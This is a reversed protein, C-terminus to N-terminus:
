ECICLIPNVILKMRSSTYCLIGAFKFVKPCDHIMVPIIFNSPFCLLKFIFFVSLCNPLMMFVFTFVFKLFLGILKKPLSIYYLLVYRCCPRTHRLMRKQWFSSCVKMLLLLHTSRLIMMRSGLFTLISYCLDSEEFIQWYLMKVAVKFFYSYWNKDKYKEHLGVTYLIYLRLLYHWWVSKVYYM